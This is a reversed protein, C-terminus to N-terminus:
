PLSLGLKPQHPLLSPLTPLGSRCGRKGQLLGTNSALSPGIESSIYTSVGGKEQGGWTTLSTRGGVRVRAKTSNESGESALAANLTLLLPEKAM